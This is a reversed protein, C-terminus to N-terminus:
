KNHRSTSAEFYSEENYNVFAENLVTTYEHLITSELLFKMIQKYKNKKNIDNNTWM